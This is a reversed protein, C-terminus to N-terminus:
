FYVIATAGFKSRLVGCALSRQVKKSFEEATFVNLRVEARLSLKLDRISARTIVNRRAAAVYMKWLPPKGTRRATIIEATDWAVLVVAAEALHHEARARIVRLAGEITMLTHLQEAILRSRQDLWTHERSLDLEYMPRRDASKAADLVRSFGHRELMKRGRREAEAILHPPAVFPTPNLV